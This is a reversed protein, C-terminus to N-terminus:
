HYYCITPLLKEIYLLNSKSLCQRHIGYYVIELGSKYFTRVLVACRFYFYSITPKLSDAIHFSCINEFILM